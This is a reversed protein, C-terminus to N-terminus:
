LRQAAMQADHRLPLTVLSDPDTQKPDACASDKGRKAELVAVADLLDAIPRHGVDLSREVGVVFHHLGLVRRDPDHSSAIREHV